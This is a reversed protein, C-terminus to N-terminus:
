GECICRFVLSYSALITVEVPTGLHTVFFVLIEFLCLFVVAYFLSSFPKALKSSFFFISLLYTLRWFSLFSFVISFYGFGKYCWFQGVM